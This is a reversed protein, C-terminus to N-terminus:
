FTYNRQKWQARRRARRRRVWVVRLVFATLLLLIVAAAAILAVQGPRVTAKFYLWRSRPLDERVELQVTGIAEGNVLVQATGVVQGATLPAELQEPLQLALQAPQEKDVLSIINGAPYVAAQEAAKCYALPLQAAPMDGDLVAGVSFRELAWDYVDATDHMAYNFGDEAPAKQAGLVVLLWTEGNQVAMSAFCRGAQNTFGTKMGRIYPRYISNEPKIMSNTNRVRYAMGEPVETGDSYKKPKTHQNSLPMWWEPTMVVEMFLPQRSCAQAILAMDYATSWNGDEIDALGHACSFSTDKCGLQAARETMRRAFADRDGNGLYDGLVSAADNGSPLLMGYLLDRLTVQEGIELEADSGNESQIFDFEAQLHEPITVVTELDEGSELLLLATMMKTLSAPARREHANQEYVVIGTDLNVLYVAQANTEFPLQWQALALPACLAALLVAAALCSLWKKM